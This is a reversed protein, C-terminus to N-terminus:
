EIYLDSKNESLSPLYRYTNQSTGCRTLRDIGLMFGEFIGHTHVADNMFQSCTNKFQCRASIQVSIYKKYWGQKVIVSESPPVASSSQYKQYILDIATNGASQAFTLVRAFLLFFVTIIVKDVFTLRILLFCVYIFHIANPM